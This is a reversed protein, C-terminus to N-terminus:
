NSVRSVTYSYVFILYEESSLTYALFYDHCQSCQWLTVSLQQLLQRIAVLGNMVMSRDDISFILHVFCIASHLASIRKM